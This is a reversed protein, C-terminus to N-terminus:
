LYWPHRIVNAIKSKQCTWILWSSWERMLKSGLTPKLESNESNKLLIGTLIMRLSHKPTNLNELADKLAKVDENM